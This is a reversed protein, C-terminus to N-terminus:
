ATQAKLEKYKQLALDNLEKKLEKPFIVQDYYKDDKGKESPASAFLGNTGDVLKFGKVVIGENTEIDFFAKTKSNGDYPNMRSIKM